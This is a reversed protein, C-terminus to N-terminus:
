KPPYEIEMNSGNQIALCNNSFVIVSDLKIYNTRPPSAEHISPVAEGVINLSKVSSNLIDLNSRKIGNMM